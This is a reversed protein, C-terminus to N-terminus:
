ANLINISQKKHNCFKILSRALSAEVDSTATFDRKSSFTPLVIFPIKIVKSREWPMGYRGKSFSFLWTRKKM